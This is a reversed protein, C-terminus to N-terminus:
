SGTDYKQQGEFLIVGKLKLCFDGQLGTTSPWALQQKCRELKQFNKASVKLFIIVLQDFKFQEKCLFEHYIHKWSKLFGSPMSM